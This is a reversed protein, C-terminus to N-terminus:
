KSKPMNVRREDELFDSLIFINRVDELSNQPFIFDRKVYLIHSKISRTKRSSKFRSLDAIRKEENLIGRTIAPINKTNQDLNRTHQGRQESDIETSAREHYQRM